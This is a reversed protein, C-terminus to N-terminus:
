FIYCQSHCWCWPLPLKGLVSEGGVYLLFSCGYELLFYGLLVPIWPSGCCGFLPPCLPQLAGQLLQLPTLSIKAGEGLFQSQQWPLSGSPLLRPLAVCCLCFGELLPFSEWSTVEDLWSGLLASLSLQDPFQTQACSFISGKLRCQASGDRSFTSPESYTARSCGGGM